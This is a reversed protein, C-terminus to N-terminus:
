GVRIVLGNLAVANGVLSLQNIIEECLVGFDLDNTFLNIVSVAANKIVAGRKHLHHFEDFAARRITNDDLIQRPKPKHSSIRVGGYGELDAESNPIDGCAEIYLIQKGDKINYYIVIKDDYVYVSNVLVDIIRKQFDIDLKDGNCFTKLWAAIQAKTYKHGAAIKLTALNLEIDAKQTELIEIKEFYRPRVKEPATLSADVAVNIEIELKKVQRELDKIGKDNFEEDYKAVIREAIYDIREPTLVYEITQEVVYWELFGKKENKKTCKHSKKKKGCAYYYYNLGGRGRGSEGVLPTGCYGCFAKGQLLYDEHAKGAAPAHKVSDIRKQVANFTEDSIISECYGEIEQGDYIYKGIYKPNKLIYHLSNFTLTRGSHLYDNRKNLEEIIQKKPMGKAYQEFIYKIVPATDEDVVLKKGVVKYGYPPIGGTQNGALVSERMGRKVHKSLNASYYEALSELLGELMIGEPEDTINETASIVRVGYKKLEAKHVASDYRNRAFRDLKWVIIYKFLKKRADALMRQFDPRDDNRGTLARDIYEGIIMYGQREAFAYCDRLQGDISQEQQGHSSYRAYIVAKPQEPTNRFESM